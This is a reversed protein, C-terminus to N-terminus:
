FYSRVGIYTSDIAKKRVDLAEGVISFKDTLKIEGSIKVKFDDPDYADASLKLWKFPAVDLGAGLKGLVIGGRLATKNDGQGLQLNWDNDNGISSIGAVVFKNKAYDFKLTADARYKDPKDGYKLDISTQIGGGSFAGLMKNAKESAQRSNEITKKIDDQLKEDGTLKEISKTIKEVNQSAQNLNHLTTIIEKSTNGNNDIQGMMKNMTTAVQNMQLAMSSLQRVTQELQDKNQVALDAFVKTMDKMNNTIDRTNKVTVIISDQVEKDAFIVNISDAMLSIKGLVDTASEMFQDVSSGATGNVKANPPIYKDIQEDPPSIDIYMSGMMGESGLLFMSGEPIKISNKIKATVIVNNGAVKIEEVQGVPVGVFNVINGPKLGSARQFKIYLDYSDFSLRIFGLFSVVAMLAALGFIVFLGVKTENKM